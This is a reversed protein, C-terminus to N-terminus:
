AMSNRKESEDLDNEVESLIHKALECPPSMENLIGALLNPGHLIQAQSTPKNLPPTAQSGDRNFGWAHGGCFGPFLVRAVMMVFLVPLVVYLVVNGAGQVM